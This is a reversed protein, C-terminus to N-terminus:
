SIISHGSQNLIRCSYHNQILTLQNSKHCFSSQHDGLLVTLASCLCTTSNRIRNLNLKLHMINGLHSGFLMMWTHPSLFESSVKGGLEETRWGLEGWEWDKWFIVRLFVRNWVPQTDNRVGAKYNNLSRHPICPVARHTNSGGRCSVSKWRCGAQVATWWALQWSLWTVVWLSPHAHRSNTVKQARVCTQSAPSVTQTMRGQEREMCCSRSWSFIARHLPPFKLWANPWPSYPSTGGREQCLTRM